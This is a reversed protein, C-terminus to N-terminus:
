VYFTIFLVQSKHHSEVMLYHFPALLSTNGARFICRGNNGYSIYTIKCTKNYRSFAAVLGGFNVLNTDILEEQIVRILELQVFKTNIM